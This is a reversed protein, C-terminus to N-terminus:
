KKKPPEIKKVEIELPTGRLEEEFGDVEGTAQVSLGQKRPQADPSVVIDIAVGTQGKPVTATEPFVIGPMPQFHLVVPGDFTKVRTINVLTRAREGPLLALKTQEPVFSFASVLNLDFTRILQVRRGQHRCEGIVEIRSKVANSLIKSVVIGSINPAQVTAHPFDAYVRTRGESKEALQGGRAEFAIPGDFGPVRTTVTPVSARQYRPLVIEKAPLEFTFPAPPTVQVAFRDALSPPL